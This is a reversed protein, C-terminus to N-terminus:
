KGYYRKLEGFRQLHYGMAEKQTEYKNIIRKVEPLVQAKLRKSEIANYRKAWWEVESELALRELQTKNFDNM